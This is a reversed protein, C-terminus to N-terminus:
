SSSLSQSVEDQLLAVCQQGLRTCTTLLLIHSKYDFNNAELDWRNSTILYPVDIM